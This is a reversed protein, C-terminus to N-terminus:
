PAEVTIHFDTSIIQRMPDLRVDQQFYVDRIKANGGCDALIDDIAEALKSINATNIHYVTEKRM